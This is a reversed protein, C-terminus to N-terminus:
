KKAHKDRWSKMTSIEKSQSAIISKAMTRLETSKGYRLEVKAMNIAGKHHPIMMMVLDKDANASPHMKKMSRMMKRNARMFAGGAESKAPQRENQALAVSPSLVFLSLVLASKTDM